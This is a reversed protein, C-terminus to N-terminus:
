NEIYTIKGDETKTWTYMTYDVRNIDGKNTYALDGIVTGYNKGSRMESAVKIPDNTKVTSAAAAIIQMAAYSYLTYAEPKIKKAEFREIVTQAEPRKQPDPAFTMLVGEAGPGGVDAFEDTAIGDAGMFTAKLGVDAMQRVLLGGETHLGGWYIFGVNAQKLKAILASFDKEGTNLGEYIVETLGFGNVVKKTEDALGKGYTTKDHLIAIRADKFNEAIFKGAVVGQQDDRGCTRFVNWLGRETLKPTTSAPTIMVIGNEAYVDSAPMSVGSNFHGIVFKVGDGAFKNAVSVGQKPDSVDDGFFLEIKKGNIGGNANIDEAAQLAGNKLQTGFSANPGTLPGAVGIKIVTAEQKPKGADDGCGTLGLAGFLVLVAAAIWHRGM